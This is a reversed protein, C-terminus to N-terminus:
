IYGWEQLRSYAHQAQEGQQVKQLFRQYEKAAGDRNGSGELSYGKLFPTNPNGPLRKEYDAFAQYAGSFDKLAIAAVGHLHIAQGEGPSAQRAKNIWGMADKPKEQTLMLKAMLVLGTYDNEKAKLASRFQKEANGYDKKAMFAEGKQEAAIVPKIRRLSAINDMYRDRYKNKGLHGGYSSKARNQATAFREDSMPHSSFMLEVASPQHKSMSRLMDMLGVMGQPNQGGKVMYEMGLKDAERENERSYKALLVGASIQGAAGLAGAYASDGAAAVLGGVAMNALMGKSMREASHRANVHGIEHGLLGALQAENDLDLLIGRTVAISGGPFAYANVYNANVVKYNYPMGPRHSLAHLSKGLNSLYQNLKLDGYIGYDASFQHPGQQRDIDIEQQESMLMLGTKGTVPDVACGTIISPIAVGATALSLLRLFTRREVQGNEIQRFNIQHIDVQDAM